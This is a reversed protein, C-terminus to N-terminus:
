PHTLVQRKHVHVVSSVVAAIRGVDVWTAGSATTSTVEVPDGVRMSARALRVQRPKAESEDDFQVPHVTTWANWRIEHPM